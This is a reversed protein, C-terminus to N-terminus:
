LAVLGKIIKFMVYVCIEKAETGKAIPTVFKVVSTAKMPNRHFWHAM